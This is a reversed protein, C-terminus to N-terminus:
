DGKSTSPTCGASSTRGASSIRGNIGLWAALAITTAWAAIHLWLGWGLAITPTNYATWIRPLVLWFAGQASLLAVLALVGVSASLSRLALKRFLGHGLVLLSGLLLAIGQLRFEGAFLERPHGWAPPLLGLLLLAACVLTSVRLWRPYALRQSSALLTLCVAGVLPPLYFLQRPLHESTQAWRGVEASQQSAPLFKVFEGMDQGTLRLAAADHDIWPAWYTGAALLLAVLLAYHIFAM